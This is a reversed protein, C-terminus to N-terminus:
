VKERKGGKIDVLQILKMLYSLTSHNVPKTLLDAIMERTPVYRLRIDKNELREKVFTKRGILHKTRRFAPGNNAMIMTSKNDQLIKIPKDLEVGLDKLLLTYWLAFTSSDELAVLESEASSRTVMQIKVSRTAVPASGNTIIMAQQGHGSPYLLHSADAFIQPKFPIDSRFVLGVNQTGALYKLVRLVKSYHDINPDSCKSALFSIPMLIDPRTFRALYMMSMILSLYETKNPLKPSYDCEVFINDTAPTKPFKKLKDMNFKQLLNQLFGSQSVFIDKNRPDRWINMGLYSIRDYQSVLTFYKNMHIEFKKKWTNDPFTVLMDDVHVSVTIRKDETTNLVYVCPDAATQVFGFEELKKNLYENFQRSSEHLGYVYRKLEFYLSGDKEQLKARDPSRMIWYKTLEASV